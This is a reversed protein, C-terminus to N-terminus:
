KVARLKEDIEIETFINTMDLKKLEDIKLIYCKKSKKKGFGVELSVPKYPDFDSIYKSLKLMKVFTKQNLNIRKGRKQMNAELIPFIDKVNLALENNVIKYHQNEYIGGADLDVLTDIEELLLEYESKTAMGEDLVQEMLNELILPSAKKLDLVTDKDTDKNLINCFVERLVYLGLLTNIYTNYVRDTIDETNPFEAELEEIVKMVKNEDWNKLIDLYLTFGLNKLLEQGAPSALYKGHKKNEATTGQLSYFVINCRNKVATEEILEEGAMIMTARYQYQKVSQDARGKGDTYNETISRILDSLADEKNKSSKSPKVEDILVTQNTGDFTRMYVFKTQGYKVAKDKLNLIPRIINDVVFSKGSGSEGCIHLIHSNRGQVNIMYPNLMQSIVSGITNISNKTNTYRFLHKTLINVEDVTIERRGTFDIVATTNVSKISNDYEGNTKLIGEQTLLVKEEKGEIDITRIGTRFYENKANTIFYKNIWEKLEILDKNNGRFSFGMNENFKTKQANNFLESTKSKKIITQGLENKIKIEINEYEEDVNYVVKVDEVRFNTLYERCPIMEGEDNQTFKTRYIGKNDQQLIRNNKLDLTNQAKLTLLSQIEKNTKNKDRLYEVYDTIDAKEGVNIMDYIKMIKLSKVISYLEKRLFDVHEGGTKDIDGLLIVKAGKLMQKMEETISMTQKCSIATFGLEVLTDADKEGEVIFIEKNENIADKILHTNYFMTIKEAKWDAQYYGHENKKINAQTYQKDKTDANRYKAKFYAPEGNVDKYIYLDEIKYDEKNKMTSYYNSFNEKFAEIKDKSCGEVDLKFIEVVKKCAEKYDCNEKLQIYKIFDNGNGKESAPCHSGGSLCNFLGSEMFGLSPNKDDHFPCKVTHNKDKPIDDGYYRAVTKLAELQNTNQKFNSVVNYINM